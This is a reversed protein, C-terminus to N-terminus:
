ATVKRRGKLFGSACVGLIGLGFGITTPEPIPAFSGAIGTGFGEVFVLVSTFTTENTRVVLWQSTQGVDLNSAAGIFPTPPPTPQFEFGVGGPSFGRDSTLAFKGGAPVGFVVGTEGGVSINSLGAYGGQTDFRYIDSDGGSGIPPKGPSLNALEYYFDLPGGLVGTRSVVRTRLIGSFEAQITEAFPSDLTGVLLGGTSTGSMNTLTVFGEIGNEPLPQFAAHTALIATFSFAGALALAKLHTTLHHQTNM